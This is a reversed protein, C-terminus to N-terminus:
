NPIVAFQVAAAMVSAVISNTLEMIGIATEAQKDKIAMACALVMDQTRLLGMVCDESCLGRPHTINKQADKISGIFGRFDEDTLTNSKEMIGKTKELTEDLLAQRDKPPVHECLAQIYGEHVVVFEAIITETAM